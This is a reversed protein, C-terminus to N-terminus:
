SGGGQRGSVRFNRIGASNVFDAIRIFLGYRFSRDLKLRVAVKEDQMVAARLFDRIWVLERKKNKYYLASKGRGELIIKEGKKRSAAAKQADKKLFVSVGIRPSFVTVIIFFVLLLFAMDSLASAPVDGSTGTRRRIRM